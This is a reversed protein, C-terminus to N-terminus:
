YGHLNYISTFNKTKVNSKRNSVYVLFEFKSHVYNFIIKHKFM